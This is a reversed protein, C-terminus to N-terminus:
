ARDSKQLFQSAYLLTTAKLTNLNSVKLILKKKLYSAKPSYSINKNSEQTRTKTLGTDPPNRMLGHLHKEALVVVYIRCLLLDKLM